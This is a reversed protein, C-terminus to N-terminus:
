NEAITEISIFITVHDTGFDYDLKISNGDESLYIRLNLEAELDCEVFERLEEIIGDNCSILGQKAEEETDYINDVGNNPHVINYSDILHASWVVVYKM